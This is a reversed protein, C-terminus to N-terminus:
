AFLLTIQIRNSYDRFPRILDITKGALIIFLGVIVNLYQDQINLLYSSEAGYRM